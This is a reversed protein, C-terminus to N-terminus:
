SNAFMFLHKFLGLKANTNAIGKKCMKPFLFGILNTNANIQLKSANAWVKSAHGWKVKTSIICGSYEIM